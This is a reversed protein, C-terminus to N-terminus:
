IFHIQRISISTSTNQGLQWSAGNIFPVAGVILQYNPCGNIFPAAGVILMNKSGNIFPAAGVIFM